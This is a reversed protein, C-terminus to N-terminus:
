KRKSSKKKGTTTKKATKKTSTKKTTTKKRRKKGGELNDSDIAKMKRYADLKAASILETAAQRELAQAVKLKRQALAIASM